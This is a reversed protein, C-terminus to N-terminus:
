SIMGGSANLMLSSIKICGSSSREPSESSTKFSRKSANYLDRYLDNERSSYFLTTKSKQLEKSFLSHFRINFKTLLIQVIHTRDKLIDRLIKEFEKNGFSKLQLSTLMTLGSESWDETVTVDRSKFESSGDLRGRRVPQTRTSDEIVMCVTSRSKTNLFSPLSTEDTLVPSDASVEQKHHDMASSNITGKGVLLQSSNSSSTDRKPATTLNLFIQQFSGWYPIDPEIESLVAKIM